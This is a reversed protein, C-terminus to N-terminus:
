AKEVTSRPGNTAEKQKAEGCVFAPDKDLSERLKHECTQVMADSQKNLCRICLLVEIRGGFLKLPGYVANRRKLSKGCVFCPPLNEFSIGTPTSM